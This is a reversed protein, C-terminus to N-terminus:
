PLASKKVSSSTVESKGITSVAQIVKGVAHITRLSRPFRSANIPNAPSCTSISNTSGSLHPCPNPCFRTESRNMGATYPVDIYVFLIGSGKSKIPVHPKDHCASRDDVPLVSRKGQQMQAPFRLLSADTLRCCRRGFSSFSLGDPRLGSKKLSFPHMSFGTSCASKEPKILQM